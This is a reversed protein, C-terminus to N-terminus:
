ILADLYKKGLLLGETEKLLPDEHEISLVYDYGNEKLAAIFSRWDIAGKGPTRYRWWGNGTIGVESLKDPLIETDKAHAHYIRDGFKRIAAIYDIKQWVLHSPDLNLGFAESPIIKFMRQWIEPSYAINGPVYPAQWGFMPCNEVAIKVGHEEAYDVLPPFAEAFVNLVDDLEAPFGGVFTCVVNVDLTASAEIIKRIAAHNKEREEVNPALNNPYYALSSILIGSKSLLRRIGDTGGKLIKEPDIHRSKPSADVELAEFGNRSAWAVVKAFDLEELIKTLFGIKL